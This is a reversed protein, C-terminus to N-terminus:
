FGLEKILLSALVQHHEINLSDGSDVLTKSLPRRPFLKNSEVTCHEKPQVSTHKKYLYM